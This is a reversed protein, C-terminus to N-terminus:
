SKMINDICKERDFKGQDDLPNIYKTFKHFKPYKIISM